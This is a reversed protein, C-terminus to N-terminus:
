GYVRYVRRSTAASRENNGLAYGIIKARIIAPLGSEIVPKMSQHTSRKPLNIRSRGKKVGIGAAFLMRRMKETITQDVGKEQWTGIRVASQSAWGVVVIGQAANRKDYKVATRLKGLRLYNRKPRRRGDKAAMIDDIDRRRAASM